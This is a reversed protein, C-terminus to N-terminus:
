KQLHDELWLLLENIVEDRNLENLMEHRGDKYLKYTLDKIGQNKYSKVLKLVGKGNKGVPDKDGSFIYIPLDKPVKSIERKDAILRLGGLLDYFFGATFITGCFPDEIYKDVEKEDRSLWDFKTRNPKFSKNYGGFSLKDLRESKASRGIRRIERKAIFRGIDAMIGQSGNSGSFIVGKLEKGYLCIYRQTLFSGMSHGLLFIPLKDNEEKIIKTLQYMNEVMANFGDEGLDGLKEIENATKGHGRHDNAYIIYGQKTFNEALREYRVATEAMGHAIQLVAKAKINKDPSWKYVFIELGDKDKFNFSEKIM